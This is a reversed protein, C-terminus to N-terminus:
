ERPVDVVSATMERLLILSEVNRAIGTEQAPPKSEEGTELDETMVKGTIPLHEKEVVKLHVVATVNQESHSTPTRVNEANGITTLITEVTMEVANIIEEVDTTEAVGTTEDEATMEVEETTVVAGIMANTLDAKVRLNEVATVNLESHSTLTTVNLVIGITAQIIVAIIEEIMAEEETMEEEVTTEEVVTTEAAEITVSSTPHVPVRPSEVDIVNPESHSTLTTVNLVIGTVIIPIIEATIAAETIGVADTMEPEEITELDETTEAADTAAEETRMLAAHNV